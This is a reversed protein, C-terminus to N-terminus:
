IGFRGRLATFNQTIEAGSLARNYILSVAVDGGLNNSGDFAGVQVLAPNDTFQTTDSNTVVAESNLYLCWGTTSDFTVAGFVWQNTPTVVPSEITYWQGNHGSQLYPTAAGWFAHGSGGSNGSMLNVYNGSVRFIGIKTYATNPLVSVIEAYGSSFTFYSQNGASTWPTSGNLTANNGAGSLDNWTTGTGSYSASNGADLNLVLGNTVLSAPPTISVGAGIIIGSSITVTM